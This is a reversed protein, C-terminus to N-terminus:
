DAVQEPSAKLVHVKGDEPHKMYVVWIDDNDVLRM